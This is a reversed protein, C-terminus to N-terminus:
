SWTPTKIPVGWGVFSLRVPVLVEITIASLQRQPVTGAVTLSEITIASLNRVPVTSSAILAEASIASLRRSPTGDTLAEDSQASLRADAM